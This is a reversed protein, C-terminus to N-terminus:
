FTLEGQFFMEKLTDELERRDGGCEKRLDRDGPIGGAARGSRKEGAYGSRIQKLLIIARKGKILHLIEADNEDLPRSADIVYLILDAKDAYEKARTLM